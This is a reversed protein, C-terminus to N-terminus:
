RLPVLPLLPPFAASRVDVNVINVVKSDSILGQKRYQEMTAWLM